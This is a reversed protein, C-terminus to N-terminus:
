PLIKQTATLCTRRLGNLYFFCPIERPFTVSTPEIGVLAASRSLELCSQCALFTKSLNATAQIEGCELKWTLMASLDALVAIVLDAM